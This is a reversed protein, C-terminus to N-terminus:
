FKMGRRGESVRLEGVERRGEGGGWEEGSNWVTGNRAFILLGKVTSHV